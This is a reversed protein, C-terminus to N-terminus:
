PSRSSRAKPWSKRLEKANNEREDMRKLARALDKKTIEMQAPLAAEQRKYKAM